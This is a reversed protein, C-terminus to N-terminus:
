RRVPHEARRVAPLVVAELYRKVVDMAGHVIRWEMRALLQQDRNLEALRDRWFASSLNLGPQPGRTPVGSLDPFGPVTYPDGATADPLTITPSLLVPRAAGAVVTWALVVLTGVVVVEASVIWTLPSRLLKRM